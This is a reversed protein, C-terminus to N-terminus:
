GVVKNKESNTESNRLLFLFELAFPKTEPFNVSGVEENTHIRLIKMDKLKAADHDQHKHGSNLGIVNM